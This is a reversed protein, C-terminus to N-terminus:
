RRRERLRDFDLHEKVSYNTSDPSFTVRSSASSAASSPAGSSVPWIRDGDSRTGHPTSFPNIGSPAAQQPPPPQAAASKGRGEASVMAMAKTLIKSETSNIREAWLALDRGDIRGTKYMMAVVSMDVKVFPNGNRDHTPATGQGHVGTPPPQTGFAGSTQGSNPNGFNVHGANQPMMPNQPNPALMNMNSGALGLM